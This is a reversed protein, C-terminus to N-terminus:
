KRDIFRPTIWHKFHLLLDNLFGRTYSKNANWTSVSRNLENLSDSMQSDNELSLYLLIADISLMKKGANSLADTDNFSTSSVDYIGQEKLIKKLFSVKSSEIMNSWLHEILQIVISRHKFYPRLQPFYERCIFSKRCLFLSM